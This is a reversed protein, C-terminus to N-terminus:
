DEDLTYFINKAGRASLQNYCENCPRALKKQDHDVAAVYLKVGEFVASIVGVEAHVSKKDFSMAVIEGFKVAIAARGSDSARAAALAAVMMKRDSRRMKRKSDSGCKM